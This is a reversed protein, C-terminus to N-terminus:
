QCSHRLAIRYTIEVTTNYIDVKYQPLTHTHPPPPPPRSINGIHGSISEIHQINM